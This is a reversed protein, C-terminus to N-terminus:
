HHPEGPFSFRQGDVRPSAPALREHLFGIPFSRITGQALDNIKHTYPTNALWLSMQKYFNNFTNNIKRDSETLFDVERKGDASM